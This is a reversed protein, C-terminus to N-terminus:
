YSQLQSDEQLHKPMSDRIQNLENQFALIYASVPASPVLSIEETARDESNFEAIRETLRQIRVLYVLSIDSEYEPHEQLYRICDSLYSNYRMPEGRQFNMSVRALTSSRTLMHCEIDISLHPVPPSFLCQHGIGHERSHEGRKMAEAM